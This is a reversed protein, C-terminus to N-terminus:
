NKIIEEYRLTDSAYSNFDGLMSFFSGHYYKSGKPIVCKVVYLNINVAFASKRHVFHKAELDTCFSHLGIEVNEDIMVLKSSYEKGMEVPFFQYYTLLPNDTKNGLEYIYNFLVKYCVIDDEAVLLKDRGNRLDLCM